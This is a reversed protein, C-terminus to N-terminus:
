DKSGTETVRIAEDVNKELNMKQYDGDKPMIMRFEDAVDIGAVASDFSVDMVHGGKSRDETIFHFHWGAANLKDMFGPFYMGVITGRQNRFAFEIQDRAMVEDLPIYPKKQARESRAKVYPFEGTIRVTYFLNKGHSSVFADLSDKLEAMSGINKLEISADEEFFTVNSFPVTESDPPLVVTGDSVAQYVTGDLVIMEGNVGQFTGLGINGHKRLEGVTIVGDYYGQILSHLQAVQYVTDNGVSCDESDAYTGNQSSCASFCLCSAMLCLGPFGARILNMKM